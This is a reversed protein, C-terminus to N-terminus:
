PYLSIAAAGLIPDQIFMFLVITVLTGGQFAPLSFADGIFGGLPEVEATIMPIIEGVSTRRFHDLPYRLVRSFLEFRLRRLMREGLQGRFVNVAYKFGGNILVLVLFIVCLALLYPVQDLSVGFLDRPFDRGGIAQNIILKPLEFSYYLFPFSLGTMALLIFQQRKSYRFIFRFISPEM